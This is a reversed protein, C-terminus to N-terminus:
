RVMHLSRLEAGAKALNELWLLPHPDVGDVHIADWARSRLAERITSCWATCVRTLLFLETIRLYEHVRHECDRDPVVTTVEDSHKQTLLFNFSLIYHVRPQQMRVFPIEM